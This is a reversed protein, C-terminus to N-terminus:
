GADGLRYAAEAFQSEINSFVAVIVPDFQQGAEAKIIACTAEHSMAPKYVRESRLADYVDAVAMIRGALPIADGALGDPYGRGDWREHHSRTLAIGLALFANGQYREVVAELTQAGILAHTKMITFEDPDLKCPKLLIRDPIAVKGIDHLPTANYINSIFDDTILTDFARSTGRLNKAMLRTYTQVREVHRGTDNDRNEALKALAFITAIQADQIEKVKDRVLQELSRNHVELQQHMRRMALHTRIRAQVEEIQFPKTVYDVGGSAFARIKDATESLASIFLVPIDKLRPDAKLQACVDFGNMGPMNIDLLIIDPPHADAAALAAEGRTFTEVRQGTSQLMASLLKLNAPIDDVVMITQEAMNNIM